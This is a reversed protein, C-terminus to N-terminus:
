SEEVKFIADVKEYNRGRMWGDYKGKQGFDKIKDKNDIEFFEYGEHPVAIIIYKKGRQLKHGPVFNPAKKGGTGAMAARKVSRASSEAGRQRKTTSTVENVAEYLSLYHNKITENTENSM